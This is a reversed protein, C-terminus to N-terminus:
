ICVLKIVMRIVYLLLVLLQPLILMIVIINKKLSAMQSSYSHFGELINYHVGNEDGFTELEIPNDLAYLKGTEYLFNRFSSHLSGNYLNMIKYVEIDNIAVKRKTFKINKTSWCM